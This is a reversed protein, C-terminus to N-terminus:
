DKSYEQSFVQLIFPIHWYDDCDDYENSEIELGTDVTVIFEKTFVVQGDKTVECCIKKNHDATLTYSPKDAADSIEVSQGPDNTLDYWKYNLTEGEAAQKGSNLTVKEKPAVTLEESASM